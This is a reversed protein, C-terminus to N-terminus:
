VLAYKNTFFIAPIDIELQQMLQRQGESVFIIGDQKRSKHLVEFHTSLEIIDNNNVLCLAKPLSTCLQVMTEDVVITPLLLRWTM